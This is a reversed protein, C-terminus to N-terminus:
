RTLILSALIQRTRLLPESEEYLQQATVGQIGLIDITTQWSDIAKKGISAAHAEKTLEYGHRALVQKVVDVVLSEACCSTM